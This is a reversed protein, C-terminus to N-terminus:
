LGLISLVYEYELYCILFVIYFKFLFIELCFEWFYENLVLLVCLGLIEIICLWVLGIFWLGFAGIGVYLCIDRSLFVLYQILVVNVLLSLDVFRLVM